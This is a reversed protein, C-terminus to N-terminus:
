SKFEYTGSGVEFVARGKEMRLFKVGEAQDVSKGSEFVKTVDQAPVLVTATTNAPVSVKWHFEGDETKWDSSIRGHISDYHGKAWTVGEGFEPKM